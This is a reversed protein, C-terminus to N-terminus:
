DGQEQDDLDCESKTKQGEGKPSSGGLIICLLTVVIGAIFTCVYAM